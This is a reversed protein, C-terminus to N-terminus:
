ATRGGFIAPGAMSTIKVPGISQVDFSVAQRGSDVRARPGVIIKKGLGEGIEVYRFVPRFGLRRFSTVSPNNASMVLTVIGGRGAARFLDLLPAIQRGHLHRGRWEPLTVAKYHYLWGEPFHFQFRAGLRAPARANLSYSVLRSGAFVGICIDDRSRADALEAEALLFEPDGAFVALAAFDVERCEFEDSGPSAPTRAEAPLALCQFPAFRFAAYSIRWALHRAAALLGFRRLQEGRRM